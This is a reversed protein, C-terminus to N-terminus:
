IRSEQNPSGRRPPNITFSFSPMWPRNHRWVQVGEQDCQVHLDVVV